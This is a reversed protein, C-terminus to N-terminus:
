WGVLSILAVTLQSRTSIRLKKNSNSAPFYLTKSIYRIARIAIRKANTAEEVRRKAFPRGTFWVVLAPLKFSKGPLSFSLVGSSRFMPLLLEGFLLITEVITLLSPGSFFTVAPVLSSFLPLASSPSLWFLLRSKTLIRFLWRLVSMSTAHKKKTAPTQNIKAVM